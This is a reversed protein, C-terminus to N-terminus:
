RDASVTASCRESSAGSSDVGQTAGHPGLARLFSCSVHLAQSQPDPLVPPPTEATLNYENPELWTLESCSEESGVRGQQLLCCWDRCNAHWTWESSKDERFILHYRAQPLRVYTLKSDM